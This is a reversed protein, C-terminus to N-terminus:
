AASGLVSWRDGTAGKFKGKTVPATVTVILKTASSKADPTAPFYEPGADTLLDIGRSGSSSVLTLTFPVMYASLGVIQETAAAPIVDSTLSQM